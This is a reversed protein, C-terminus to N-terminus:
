ICTLEFSFFFKVDSNLRQLINCVISIGAICVGAICVGAVCLGAICLSAICVGAICLGAICVGCTAISIFSVLYTMYCIQHQLM